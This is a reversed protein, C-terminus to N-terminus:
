IRFKAFLAFHDSAHVNILPITNRLRLELSQVFIDNTFMRDFRCMGVNKSIHSLNTNERPNWTGMTGINGALTKWIDKYENQVKDNNALNTDGAIVYKKQETSLKKFIYNLQDLRLKQNTESAALHINAIAIPNQKIELHLLHFSRNQKQVLSQELKLNEFNQFKCEQRYYSLLFFDENLIYKGIYNLNEMLPNLIEFAKLTVEQFLVITPLLLSIETAIFNMRENLNIASKWINLSFISFDFNYIPRFKKALEHWIQPTKAYWKKEEPNYQAGLTKAIDKTQFSVDFDYFGNKNRMLVDDFVVKQQQPLPVPIRHTYNVRNSMKACGKQNSSKYCLFGTKSTYQLIEIIEQGLKLIDEEQSTQSYIFIVYQSTSKDRPSTAYINEIKKVKEWMEERDDIFLMWKGFDMSGTGHTNDEERIRKM